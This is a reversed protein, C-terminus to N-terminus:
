SEQPGKYFDPWIIKAVPSVAAYSHCTNLLPPPQDFRAQSLNGNTIKTGTLVHAAVSRMAMNAMDEIVTFLHTCGDTREICARVEKLFGRGIRLGVLNQYAPLANPCVPPYPVADMAAAVAKITLDESVTWRLWIEHMPTGQPVERGWSTTFDFAHTDLVRGEIDWDGDDRQYAACTINRTQHLHRSDPNPLPM